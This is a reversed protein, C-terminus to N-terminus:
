LVDLVPKVAGLPRDNIFNFLAILNWAYLALLIFVSANTKGHRPLPDLHFFDKITGFFPEITSGRQRYRAKGQPSALYAARDRRDQPTTKGVPKSLPALVEIGCLACAAILDGDDYGADL